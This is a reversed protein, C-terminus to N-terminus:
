ENKPKIESTYFFEAYLGNQFVIKTINGDLVIIRRLIANLFSKPINPDIAKAFSRYEFKSPEELLKLMVLWSAKKELYADNEADTTIIESLRKEISLQDDLIKQREIIYQAPPTEKEGFLYLNRLRTLALENKKQRETLISSESVPSESESELIIDPSFKLKESQSKMSSLILRLCDEGINCDLGDTLMNRLSTITTHKKHKKQAYLVNAVFCFVFPAITTDSVLKNTCDNKHQRRFACNYVSPQLGDSMTRSRTAIYNSGCYGCEILGAFIHVHKRHYSDGKKRSNRRNKTLKYIIRDHREQSIMSPHHNTTTIWESPDKSKWQNREDHVNYVYDGIYFPSSLLKHVAAFSWDNGQRSKLGLNNVVTVTQPISELKEYTEIIKFYIDAEQPNISFEGTNPDYNYGFPIRGGNWQGKGARSLMVAQVREATMNRELEAFVLIIKLMAEGMATGTDFRELSSIFIVGLSKLESYMQAFDLVNRSIRDIKWVLLHSFEGSRLRSMMQQFAPRDTNKGSYGGDEFVEYNDILLVNKCYAILRERQMELSDGDNVQM